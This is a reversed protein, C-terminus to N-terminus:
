CPDEAGDCDCSDWPVCLECPVWCCVVDLGDVDREEDTSVLLVVNVAFTSCILVTRDVTVWGVSDTVVVTVSAVVCTVSAAVAWCAAVVACDVRAVAVVLTTAAVSCIAVAVVTTAVVCSAAVWALM